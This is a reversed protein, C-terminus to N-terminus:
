KIGTGGRRGRVAAEAKADARAEAEFRRRVGRVDRWRGKAVVMPNVRYFGRGGRMPTILARGRLARLGRELSAECGLGAESAVDARYPGAVVVENDYSMRRVLVMLLRMQGGTLGCLEMGGDLYLKAFDEEKSVRVSETQSEEEIVEGTMSDVVVRTSTREVNSVRGAMDCWAGAYAVVM